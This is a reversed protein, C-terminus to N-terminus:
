LLFLNRHIFKFNMKYQSIESQNAKMPIEHNILFTSGFDIFSGFNNLNKFHTLPSLDYIQFYKLELIRLIRSDVNEILCKKKRVSSHDCHANIIAYQMSFSVLSSLLRLWFVPRLMAWKVSLLCKRRSRLLECYYHFNQLTCKNRITM